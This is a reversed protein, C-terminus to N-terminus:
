QVILSLFPRDAEANEAIEPAKKSVKVGQPEYVDYLCAFM